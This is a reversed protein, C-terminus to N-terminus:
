MCCWTYCCCCEGVGGVFVGKELLAGRAASVSCCCDHGCGRSFFPGVELVKDGYCEGYTKGGQCTGLGVLLFHICDSAAYQTAREM